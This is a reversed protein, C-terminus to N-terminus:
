QAEGLQNALALECDDRDPHDHSVLDAIAWATRIAQAASCPSILGLNIARSYVVNSGPDLQYGRPLHPLRRAVQALDAAAVIRIGPVLTTGTANQAPIVASRFRGNDAATQLVPLVDPVARLQGDLGLEGYFLTTHLEHAPIQGAAALVAVALALDTDSAHVPLSGSAANITLRGHPWTLGSNIVAARVRDMRVRVTDDPFGLLVTEPLGPVISVDITVPRGSTGTVAASHGHTPSM